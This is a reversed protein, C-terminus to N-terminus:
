TQIALLEARQGKEVYFGDFYYCDNPRKYFVKLKYAHGSEMYEPFEIREVPIFEVQFNITDDEKMSCGSIGALVILLLLLKKM